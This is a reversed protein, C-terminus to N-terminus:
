QFNWAALTLIFPALLNEAASLTSASAVTYRNCRLQEELSKRIVLEDDVILVKDFQM